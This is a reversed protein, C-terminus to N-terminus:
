PKFEMRELLGFQLLHHYCHKFHAREWEEAGLPGFLPHIHNSEPKEYFHISFNKLEMKLRDIAEKLNSFRLPLPDDGLLPNKFNQPTQSDNYLFRKAREILRQQLKCPVELKGTSIEFTYLLHEIMHQASMKGWKARSEENLHVLADLIIHDLFTHRLNADNVTFPISIM